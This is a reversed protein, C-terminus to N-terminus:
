LAIFLYCQPRFARLKQIKKKKKRGLVYVTAVVKGYGQPQEKQTEM